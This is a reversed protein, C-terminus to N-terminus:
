PDAVLNSLDVDYFTQNSTSPVNISNDKEKSRKSIPQEEIVGNIDEEHTRKATAQVESSDDRQINPTPPNSLLNEKNFYKFLTM